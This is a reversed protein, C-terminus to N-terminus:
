SARNWPLQTLNLSNPRKTARRETVIARVAREVLLEESGTVVIIPALTPALEETVGGADWAGM